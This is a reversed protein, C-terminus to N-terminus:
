ARRRVGQYTYGNKGRKGKEGPEKLVIEFGAEHARKNLRFIHTIVCQQSPLPYDRFTRWNIARGIEKASFKRGPHRALFSLIEAQRPNLKLDSLCATTSTTQQLETMAGTTEKKNVANAAAKFPFTM